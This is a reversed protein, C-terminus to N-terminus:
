PFMTQILARTDPIVKDNQDYCIGELDVRIYKRTDKHKYHYIKGKHGMYMFLNCFKSQLLLQLASWHTIGQDIEEIIQEESM